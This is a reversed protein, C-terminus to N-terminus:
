GFCCRVKSVSIAIEKHMIWATACMVRLSSLFVECHFYGGALYRANQADAQEPFFSAHRGVVSRNICAGKIVFVTSPSLAMKAPKPSRWFQHPIGVSRRVQVSRSEDVSM